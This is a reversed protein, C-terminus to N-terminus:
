LTRSLDVKACGFNGGDVNDVSSAHQEEYSNEKKVKFNSCKKVFSEVSLGIKKM